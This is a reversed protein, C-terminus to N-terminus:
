HNSPEVKGTEESIGRLNNKDVDISISNAELCRLSTSMSFLSDMEVHFRQLGVRDISVSSQSFDHDTSRQQRSPQKHIFDDASYLAAELEQWVQTMTPRKKPVKEVCRLGLQGVRLMMEVNCHELLLNADLIAEVRGQELSPRAQLCHNWKSVKMIQCIGQYNFM